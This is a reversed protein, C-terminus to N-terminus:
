YRATCVSGNVPDSDATPSVWCANTWYKAPVMQTWTEEGSEIETAYRYRLSSGKKTTNGRVQVYNLNSFDARLKSSAEAKAWFAYCKRSYILRITLGDFTISAIREAGAVCGAARPERGACSTAYCTAAAVAPTAAVLPMAVAMTALVSVAAITKQAPWRRFVHM